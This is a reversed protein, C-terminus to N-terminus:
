TTGLSFIPIIKFSDMVTLDNPHIHACVTELLIVSTHFHNSVFQWYPIRENLSNVTSIWGYGQGLAFGHM